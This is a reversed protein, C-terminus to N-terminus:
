SSFCLPKYVQELKFVVDGDGFKADYKSRVM